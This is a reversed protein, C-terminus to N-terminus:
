GSDALKEGTKPQGHASVPSLNELVASLFPLRSEPLFIEGDGSANAVFREGCDIVGKTIEGVPFLGILRCEQSVNLLRPPCLVLLVEVVM